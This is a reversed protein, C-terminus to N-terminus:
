NSREYRMIEKGSTDYHICEGTKTELIMYSARGDRPRVISGPNIFVIDEIEDYRAIHTHGYFCYDVELSKAKYFLRQLSSYVGFLHGHTVFIKKGEVEILLELPLPADNWSNGRVMRMNFWDTPIESDGCHVVDDVSHRTIIDELIHQNGHSDSVILIKM